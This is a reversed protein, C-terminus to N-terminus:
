MGMLSDSLLVGGWEEAGGGWDLSLVLPLWFGVLCM